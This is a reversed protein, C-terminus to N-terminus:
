LRLELGGFIGQGAAHSAGAYYRAVVDVHPFVPVGGVVDYLFGTQLPLSLRGLGLGAGLYAGGPAHFVGEATAAFHTGGGAFPFMGSAQTGFPGVHPGQFTVIGTGAGTGGRTGLYGASLDVTDAAAIAPVLAIAVALTASFFTRKV